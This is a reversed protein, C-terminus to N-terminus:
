SKRDNGVLCISIKDWEERAVWDFKEAFLRDSLYYKDKERRTLYKDFQGPGGNYMAYILGAFSKKDLVRKPYRKMLRALTYKRIYLSLIECGAMANYRIDWRLHGRDYFGRWVRENIQMLGVSTKNYSRLYTIKREKVVFQRFCSEQWATSFVMGPFRNQVTTPLDGKNLCEVIVGTLLTRVKETYPVLEEPDKFVWRKIDKLIHEKQGTGKKAAFAPPILLNLLSRENGTDLDIAEEPHSIGSEPLPKGFGLLERLEEDVGVTYTLIIEKKEIIMRALRILGNKSIEIGLSPGIRDLASLADSATLFALYGLLNRSPDDGLHNRFVPALHQWTWLFQERVFDGKIREDTLGTIFRYRTELLVDLLIQRDERTLPERSLSILILVLYVDWAEWTDVLHQFEAESLREVVKDMDRDHTDEIDALVPIRLARPATQAEGPRMSTTLRDARYKLDEPFIQELFGKLNLIPPALNITISGLYHFVSTKVLNWVLGVIAAPKQNRDFVSSDIIDFSLVWRSSVRPVQYLVLYGEWEVPLICNGFAPIGANVYVRTQFRLLGNEESFRPESIRIEWCGNEEDVLVAAPGPDTFATKVVLSRLLQYDITLPVNVTATRGADPTALLLFFVSIVMGIFRQFVM